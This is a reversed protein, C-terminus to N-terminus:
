FALWSPDNWQNSVVRSQCNQSFGTKNTASVRPFNVQPLTQPLKRHHKIASCFSCCGKTLHWEKGKILRWLVISPKFLGNSVPHYAHPQAIKMFRMLSNKLPLSHTARQGLNNLCGMYQSFLSCLVEITSQSTTSSMTIVEPCKSHTDIVILATKDLFPGPVAVHMSVNGHPM